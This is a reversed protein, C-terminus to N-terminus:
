VNKHPCRGNLRKGWNCNMCLLQYRDQPYGQKQLWRYFALGERKTEKREKAGDNYIHDITLFNRNAEGCCKCCSGYALIIAAKIRTHNRKAIASYDIKKAKIGKEIRALRKLRLFKEYELSSHIFYQKM